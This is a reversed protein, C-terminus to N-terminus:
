HYRDAGVSADIHCTDARMEVNWTQDTHRLKFLGTLPCPTERDERALVLVAGTVSAGHGVFLLPDLSQHAISEVALAARRHAAASTEPYTPSFSSRYEPDIRPFQRALESISRLHPPRPFWEPNLHEGFGPELRIRVGLVRAVQDATQVARLFPSAYVLGIPESRLREALRRAQEVGDASLPPDDPLSARDRWTPDVFDERNGHRALWIVHTMFGRDINPPRGSGTM